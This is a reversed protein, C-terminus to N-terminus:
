PYRKSLTCNRGGKPKYIKWILGDNPSLNANDCSGKATVTLVFMCLKQSTLPSTLINDMVRYQLM